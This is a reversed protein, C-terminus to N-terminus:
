AAANDKIGAEKALLIRESSIAPITGNGPLALGLAEAMCNMSNATFMGACSGCGPCAKQEMQQLESETIRGAKVAGVGEFVSSLDIKKGKHIVPRCLAAV